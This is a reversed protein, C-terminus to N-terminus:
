SWTKRTINTGPGRSHLGASGLAPPSLTGGVGPGPKWRLHAARGGRWDALSGGAVMFLVYGLLFAFYIWGMDTETFHCDRMVSNVVAPLSQRHFHNLGTFGMLIVILQWRVWTPQPSESLPDRPWGLPPLSPKDDM